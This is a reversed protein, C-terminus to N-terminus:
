RVTVEWFIGCNARTFQIVDLLNSRKRCRDSFGRTPPEIGGRAVMLNKIKWRTATPSHRPFGTTTGYNHRSKRYQRCVGGSAGRGPACLAAGDERDGMGRAGTVCLTANRGTRALEGLHPASRALSLGRYRCAQTGQVLSSHQSAQHASRRLYVGPDSTQREAGAGGAAGHRQAARRDGEQGEWSLGTVNAARLGTALTFTAMDRLHPPLERLLARAQHRNLFRIRRTPEKLLRVAPVRDLWEWDRACKRLIARILALTRNVTGNSCGDPRKAETIADILARNISELERNALYRDLWRLKEKDDELSAKHLQERLWRVAADQWLRRPRDGLKQLRWVESRLKDHLEQAQAKNGTKASRRVREGSPTAIDIWWVSGRKRLSM